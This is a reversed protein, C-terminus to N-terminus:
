DPAMSHLIGPQGHCRKEGETPHILCDTDALPDCILPSSLDLLVLPSLERGWSLPTRGVVGLGM